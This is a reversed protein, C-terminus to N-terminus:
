VERDGVFSSSVSKTSVGVRSIVAIRAYPRAVQQETTVAIMM